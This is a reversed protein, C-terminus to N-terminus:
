AKKFISTSEEEGFKIFLLGVGRNNIKMTNSIDKIRKQM